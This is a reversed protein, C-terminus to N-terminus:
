EINANPGPRPPKHVGTSCMRQNLDDGAQQQDRCRGLEDNTTSLVFTRVNTNSYHGRARASVAQRSCLAALALGEQSRARHPELALLDRPLLLHSPFLGFVQATCLALTVLQPSREYLEVGLFLRVALLLPADHLLCQALGGVGLQLAVGDVPRLDDESPADSEAREALYGRTVWAGGPMQEYIYNVGERRGRGLHILGREAAGRAGDLAYRTM